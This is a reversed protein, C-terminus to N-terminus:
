TLSLILVCIYEDFNLFDRWKSYISQMKIKKLRQKILQM